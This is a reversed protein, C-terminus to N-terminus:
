LICWFLGNPFLSYILLDTTKLLFSLHGGWMNDTKNKKGVQHKVPWMAGLLHMSLFEEEWVMALFFCSSKNRQIRIKQPPKEMVSIVLSLLIWICLLMSINYFLYLYYSWNFQWLLSIFYIWDYAFFSRKLM